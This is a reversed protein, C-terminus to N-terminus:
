RGFPLRMTQQWRRGDFELLAAASVTAHVPLRSQLAQEVVTMTADDASDTVTLHPIPDPFEGGYPPFDPWRELLAATLKRFPADPEPTLYLVGPFRATTRLRLEYGQQGASIRQLEARDDDTLKEAPVFPYCLTILPPVGLPAARDYRRRWRGVVPDAAEVPVIVGTEGAAFSRTM